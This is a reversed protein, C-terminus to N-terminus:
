FSQSLNFLLQSLATQLLRILILIIIPSIDITGGIPPIIRRAPGMVPETVTYLFRVIPNYPDPSVWSIIARGIILFFFITLLYDVVYFVASIIIM